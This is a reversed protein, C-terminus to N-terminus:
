TCTRTFTNATKHLLRTLAVPFSSEHEQACCAVQRAAALHIPSWQWTHDPRIRSSTRLSLSFLNPPNTNKRKSMVYASRLCTTVYRFDTQRFVLSEPFETHTPWLASFSPCTNMFAKGTLAMPSDPLIGPRIADTRPPPSEEPWVSM